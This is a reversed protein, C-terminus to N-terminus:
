KTNNPYKMVLIAVNFYKTTCCTFFHLIMMIMSLFLKEKKM